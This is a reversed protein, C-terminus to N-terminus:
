EQHAKGKRRCQYIIPPHTAEYTVNGVGQLDVKEKLDLQPCQNKMTQKWEWTCDFDPLGKWKILVEDQCTRGNVRRDLVREPEVEM